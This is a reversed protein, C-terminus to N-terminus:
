GVNFTNSVTGIVRGDEWCLVSGEELWGDDGSGPRSQMARVVVTGSSTFRPQTTLTKQRKSSSPSNVVTEINAGSDIKVQDDTKIDTKDETNAEAQDEVKEAEREMKAEEEARAAGSTEDGPVIEVKVAPKCEEEKLKESEMWLEVKKEKMWSVLEGALSTGEGEPLKQIPPLPVPPLVVEHASVIPDSTTPGEEEEFMELNITPGRPSPLPSSSFEVGAAGDSEDESESDPRSRGVLSDLEKKLEAHSEETVLNGNVGEKEEESEEESSSEFDSSSEDSSEVVPQKGKVNERNRLSQEVLKRKEAASMDISPLSGVVQQSAVLDSIFSLDQPITPNPPPKFSSVPALPAPLLQHEMTGASTTSSALPPESRATPLAMELETDSDM